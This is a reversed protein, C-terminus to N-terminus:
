HSQRCPRKMTTAYLKLKREMNDSSIDQKIKEIIASGVIVADAGADIMQKVHLSTSIGFGVAV